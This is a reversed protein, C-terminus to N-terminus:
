LEQSASFGEDKVALMERASEEAGGSIFNNRIITAISILAGALGVIQVITALNLWPQIVEISPTDQFTLDSDKSLAENMKAVWLNFLEKEKPTADDALSYNLSFFAIQKGARKPLLVFAWQNIASAPQLEPNMASSEFGPASLRGSFYLKGHLAIILRSLWKDARAYYTVIRSSNYDMVVPHTDYLDFWGEFSVHVNSVTHERRSNVSVYIIPALILLLALIFAALVGWKKM